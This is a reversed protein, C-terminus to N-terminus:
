DLIGLEECNVNVRQLFLGKRNAMAGFEGVQKGRM